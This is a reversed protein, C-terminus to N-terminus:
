QEPPLRNCCGCENHPSVPSLHPMDPSPPIRWQCTDIPNDFGDLFALVAQAGVSSAMDLTNTPPLLAHSALAQPALLSWAEDENSRYQYVCSACATVGAQVLPGVLVDVEEAWALLHPIGEDMLRSTSAPAILHSGTVVAIDPTGTTRIDSSCQRLATVFAQSRPLGLWHKQLIPHDATGVIGNDSFVIGGVGARVLALAIAVSLADVNTLLVTAHSRDGARSLMTPQSPAPLRKAEDDWLVHAERLKYLIQALRQPKIGASKASSEMDVRTHSETLRSIFDQEDPSLGDITLATRPDLGIQVTTADRWYVRYDTLLQM